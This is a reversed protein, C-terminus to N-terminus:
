TPYVFFNQFYIAIILAIVLVTLAIILQRKSGIHKNIDVKKYHKEYYLVLLVGIIIGIWELSVGMIRISGLLFGCGLIVILSLIVEYWRIKESM